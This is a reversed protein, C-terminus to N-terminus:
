EIQIINEDEDSQIEVVDRSHTQNRNRLCITKQTLEAIKINKNEIDLQLQKILNESRHQEQLLAQYKEKLRVKSESGEEVSKLRKSLRENEDKHRRRLIQAEKSSEKREKERSKILLYLKNNEETLSLCKSNLSKVENRFNENEERVIELRNRVFAAETRAEMENNKLIEFQENENLLRILGQTKSEVKTM